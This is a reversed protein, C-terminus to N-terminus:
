KSAKRPEFSKVGGMARRGYVVNIDAGLLLLVASIYLWFMLLVISALGGYVLGYGERAFANLYFAFGYKAIEWTLGAVLTGPLISKFSLKVNPVLKYIILFLLLSSIIGLVTNFLTWVAVIVRGTFLLRLIEDRFVTALATASFSFFILAAIILYVGIAVFKQVLINRTEATEYVANLGIAIGGFLNTGAWLFGLLAIIGAISRFDILPIIISDRIFGALAPFNALVFDMVQNQVAPDELVFGLVIGSFLLLPFLSFFIFFAIGGALLSGSHKNFKFYVEKLFEFTNRLFHM